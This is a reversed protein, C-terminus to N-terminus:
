LKSLATVACYNLDENALFDVAVRVNFIEEMKEQSIMERSDGFYSKGNKAILLSKNSIKLAHSPYHTNFICTLNYKLALLQITELIILQNKFDLNSEPEDLILVKPKAILARAILAMQLEGGSVQNCLQDKLHVIQLLEMVERALVLDQESPKSLNGIHASRGFVIIEELTYGFPLSKAQPVYAVKKWLDKHGSINTGDILTEGQEWKLLSMMCKLFTTKGVGNPGLIALVDGDNVTININNLVLDKKYRFTGNVVKLEM